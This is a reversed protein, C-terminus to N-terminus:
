QPKPPSMNPAATPGSSGSGTSKKTKDKTDPLQVTAGPKLPTSDKRDPLTGDKSYTKGESDPGNNNQQSDAQSSSNDKTQSDAAQDTSSDHVFYFWCAALVLLVIITPLTIKTIKKM